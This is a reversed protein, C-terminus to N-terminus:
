LVIYCIQASLAMLGWAFLLCIGLTSNQLIVRHTALLSTSQMAVHHMINYNHIHTIIAPNHHFSIHTILWQKSHVDAKM